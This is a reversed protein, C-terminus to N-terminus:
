NRVAYYFKHDGRRHATRILGLAILRKVIKGAPRCYRNTVNEPYVRWAAFRKAAFLAEGLQGCTFRGDPALTPALKLARREVESLSPDDTGTEANLDPGPHPTQPMKGSASLHTRQYGTGRCHPCTRINHKVRRMQGRTCFAVTGRGACITCTSFQWLIGDLTATTSM